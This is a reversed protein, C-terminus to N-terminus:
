SIIMEDRNPGVGIYKASVGTLSEIKKVYSQAETPLDKFERCQRISQNWGPMVEIIPEVHALEELSAPIKTIEKNGIKYGVVVPIEKYTDLVDLKTLNWATIGNVRATFRAVVADFWGCRRPRGTTAGYEGGQERLYEGAEGDLESVFPGEGVRTTYAKLVGVIEGVSNIPLGTGTFAGASTTNSSTVYPFTGLDIDLHVGQAGEILIKKNQGHANLLYDTTDIIMDGYKEYFEKHFALEDDIGDKGHIGANRRLCREFESFNEMMGVRIGIRNAKDSFAPGIGCKTTGIKNKKSNEQDADLEKHYEFILHARDSIFLKDKIDFGADILINMEEELTKLHVVCGNGIVCPTGRLLGSPILHFVFKENNIYITHGANAGGQARAVIDVNDALFDVVKGKGEDGWQAGVIVSINKM